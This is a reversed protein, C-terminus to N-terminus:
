NAVNLFFILPLHKLGASSTLSSTIQWQHEQWSVQLRTFLTCCYEKLYLSMYGSYMESQIWTGELIHGKWYGFFTKVHTLHLVCSCFLLVLNFVWIWFKVEFVWFGSILYLVALFHFYQIPEFSGSIVSFIHTRLQFILFKSCLKTIVAYMRSVHTLNREKRYPMKM